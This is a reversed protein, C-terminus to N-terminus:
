WQFDKTKLESERMIMKTPEFDYIVDIQNGSFRKNIFRIWGIDKRPKKDEGEMLSLCCYFDVNDLIKQSGRTFNSPDRDYVTTGKSLHCILSIFINHDKALDKLEASHTTYSENETGISKMMSLGDVVLCDLNEHDEKYRKILRDYDDVTMRSQQTIALNDGYYSKLGDKLTDTIQQKNHKDLLSYLYESRSIKYNLDSTEAPPLAFDIMRNLLLTAPMEMTSYIGTANSLNINLNLVNLALLSKKTGGYGIFAGLSGRMNGKIDNDIEEFGFLLPNEKQRIGLDVWDDVWEYASKYAKREEQKIKSKLKNMAENM